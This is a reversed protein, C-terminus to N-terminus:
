DRYEGRCVLTRAFGLVDRAIKEIAMHSDYFRMLLVSRQASGSADSLTARIAAALREPQPSAIVMGSHRFPEWTYQGDMAVVPVGRELAAALSTRRSEPGRADASVYLDATVLEESLQADDLAGTFHYPVKSRELALQWRRGIASDAGPSGLLKLTVPKASTQLLSLATTLAEVAISDAGYGLICITSACSTSDRAPGRWRGNGNVNSTVPTFLIPRNGTLRSTALASRREPTHVCIGTPASLVLPLVARQSVAQLSGRAGNEGFPFAWEHCFLMVPVRVQRLFRFFLPVYVPIGRYSLAFVSYHMVILDLDEARVHRRINQKWKRLTAITVEAADIWSDNVDCGHARLGQDLRLAFQHVGCTEGSSIGLTVVKM